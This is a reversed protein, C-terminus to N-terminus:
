NGRRLPRYKVSVISSFARLPSFFLNGPIIESRDDDHLDSKNNSFTGENVKNDPKNRSASDKGEDRGPTKDDGKRQIGGGKASNWGRKARM